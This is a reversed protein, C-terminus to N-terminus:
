RPGFSYDEAAQVPMVMGLTGVAILRSGVMIQKRKRKAADSYFPFKAIVGIRFRQRASRSM